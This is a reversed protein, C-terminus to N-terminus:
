VSFYLTTRANTEQRLKMARQSMPACKVYSEKLFLHPKNYHNALCFQRWNENLMMIESQVQRMQSECLNHVAKRTALLPQRASVSIDNLVWTCQEGLLEKEQRLLNEFKTLEHLRSEEIVIYKKHQSPVKTIESLPADKEKPASFLASSELRRYTKRVLTEQSHSTAPLGFDQTIRDTYLWKQNGEFKTSNQPPKLPFIAGTLSDHKSPFLSLPNLLQPPQSHLSSRSFDLSKSFESATTSGYKVGRKQKM